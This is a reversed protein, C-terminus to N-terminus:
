LGLGELSILYESQAEKVRNENMLFQYVEDVTQGGLLSESYDLIAFMSFSAPM